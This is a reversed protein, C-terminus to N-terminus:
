LKFLFGVLLPPVSSPNGTANQHQTETPKQKMQAEEIMKRELEEASLAAAPVAPVKAM